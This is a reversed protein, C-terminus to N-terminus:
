WHSHYTPTTGDGIAVQDQGPYPQYYPLNTLRNTMHSTTTFDLFWNSSSSPASAVSSAPASAVYAKPTLQHTSSSTYTSSSPHQNNQFSLDIQVLLSPYNLKTNWM